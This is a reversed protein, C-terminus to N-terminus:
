EAMRRQLNLVTLTMWRSPEKKQAFEWGKWKSWISEPLYHGNENAKGSIIKVMEQLRADKRALPFFSLVSAVHLIDYWVLPLKLKRFDTGMHFLYPWQNQSNEWLRLMCELGNQVAPM